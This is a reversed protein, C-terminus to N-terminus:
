SGYRYVALALLSSATLPLLLKRLPTDAGHIRCYHVFDSRVAPWGGSRM